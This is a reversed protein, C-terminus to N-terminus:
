LQEKSTIAHDLSQSTIAPRRLSDGGRPCLPGPLDGAVSTASVTPLGSPRPAHGMLSSLDSASSGFSARGRKPHLKPKGGIYPPAGIAAKAKRFTDNGQM